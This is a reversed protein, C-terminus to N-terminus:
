PRLPVGYSSSPPGLNGAVDFEGVDVHATTAFPITACRGPPLVGYFISPHGLNAEAYRPQVLRAFGWWLKQGVPLLHQTGWELREKAQTPYHSEM